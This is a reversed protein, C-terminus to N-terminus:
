NVPKPVNAQNRQRLAKFEDAAARLKDMVKLKEDMSMQARAKRGRERKAFIEELDPYRKSSM